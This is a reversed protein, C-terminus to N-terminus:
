SANRLANLKRLEEKMKRTGRAGQSHVINKGCTPCSFGKEIATGYDVRGCGCEFTIDEPEALMGDLEQIRTNVYRNLYERIKDDRRVWRYYCYGTDLRDRNLQVLNKALLDNLIVRVRSTECKLEKSIEKDEMPTDIVKIVELTDSGLTESLVVGLEGKTYAM